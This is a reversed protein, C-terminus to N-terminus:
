ADYAGRAIAATIFDPWTTRRATGAIPDFLWCPEDVAQPADALPVGYRLIGFLYLLLVAGHGTRQVHVDHQPPTFLRRLPDDAGVREAIPWLAAIPPETPRHWLVDRLHHAQASDLWDLGLAERGFALALKAGFRPWISADISFEMHAVPDQRVTEIRGRVEWDPGLKKRLRESRKALLAEAEGPEVTYRERSEDRREPVPLRRGYIAGDTFEVMVPEDAELTRGAIRPAPPVEGRADPIRYGHRYACILTDRLFPADVEQGARRNCEGCV